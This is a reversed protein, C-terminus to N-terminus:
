AEVVVLDPPTTQLFGARDGEVAFTNICLALGKGEPLYFNAEYNAVDGPGFTEDGPDSGVEYFFDGVWDPPFAIGLEYGGIWWEDGWLGVERYYREV